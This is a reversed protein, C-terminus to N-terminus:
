KSPPVLKYGLQQMFSLNDFEGWDEVMKGGALRHTVIATFTVKKGTPPGLGEGTHTATGTYHVVVYDGKSIM